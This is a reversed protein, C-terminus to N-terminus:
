QRLKQAVLARLEQSLNGCQQARGFAAIAQTHPDGGERGADMELALGLGLWWRGDDPALRIAAQYLEAADRGNGLRQHLHGFFGLYDPNGSAAPLSDKLTRAAGQLDGRDVQLRALTMAWATQQPQAQLGARLLQMAADTQQAELLLRVLLQRSNFHRDNAHLAAQLIERAADPRGQAAAALAQRYAVEATEVATQNQPARATGTKQISARAAPESSNETESVHQNPATETAPQAPEPEKQAAVAAAVAPVSPEEAAVHPPPPTPAAQAVPQPAPSADPAPPATAVPAATVRQAFYIFTFAVLAVAVISVTLLALIWPLRSVPAPPLARVSFLNGGAGQVEHRADLDQLMQNILSM